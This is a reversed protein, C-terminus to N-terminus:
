RSPHRSRRRAHDVLDARSRTGTKRLMNSVHVSITKESLVLTHAIERYTKGSALHTLVELERATLGPVSLTTAPEGTAGLTVHVNAALMEIDALLPNARLDVALEHARRLAATAQVRDSRPRLGSQAARWRCYAEDWPIGATFCAEAAEHWQDAENEDRRARATEADAICQLAARWRLEFEAPAIDDGVVTPYCERLARLRGLEAIHDPSGERCVLIRDALARVAIPLLVESCLPLPVMALGHAAIDFAQQTDGRTVALEAQVADFNFAHFEAPRMILEAARAAHAEAEATRGQRGALLAATNRARADALVSPRAGLTVRLRDLCATWDGATLLTEAELSCIESVHGHPAGSREAEERCLRAEDALATWTSVTSTNMIMYIAEVALDFDRARLAMTWARRAAEAGRALDSNQHYALSQAILASGTADPWGGARALRVAEAARAAGEPVGHWLMAYAAAAVALAHERSHPHAASLQEALTADPLGALEIGLGYRLNVRRALLEAATLPQTAHDVVALLEDLAALEEAHRGAQRAARLIRRLLPVTSEKEPRLKLARTLLRVSEASGGSAEAHDAALLASEYAASRMGAHFYHDARSIPDDVREALEAHMARRQDPLLQDVLVEALLPHTFWYLGDDTAALIGADVPEPSSVPSPRGAVAIETTLRRAAPSLDHWSRALADRLGTPLHPPLHRADPDLGQVLLKTLYPNGDSREQVDDVLSEYPPRGLLVTIQERTSVRDLRDLTIERVGPLRRVDALWRRLRQDEGSRITTLVALRREARGAIVYMLVDLSSQDAWQLDDVVLLVPREAALQELHDDFELVTSFAPMASRLPLLPAALSALPLCPVWLTRAPAGECAARVMTTKGIGAEGSVLLTGSRGGVAAAVVEDAPGM